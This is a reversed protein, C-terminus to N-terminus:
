EPVNWRRTVRSRINPPPVYQDRERRWELWSELVACAFAAIGIAGICVALTFFAGLAQDAFDPASM